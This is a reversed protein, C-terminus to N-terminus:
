LYSSIIDVLCSAVPPNNCLIETEAKRRCMIRHERTKVKHIVRFMIVKYITVYRFMNAHHAGDCSVGVTRFPSCRLLYEGCGSCQKNNM